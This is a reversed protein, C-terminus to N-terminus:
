NLLNILMALERNRLKLLTEVIDDIDKDYERFCKEILKESPRIRTKGNRKEFVILGQERLKALDQFFNRYTYDRLQPYINRFAILILFLRDRSITYQRRYISCLIKVLFEM